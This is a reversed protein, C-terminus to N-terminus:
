YNKNYISIIIALLIGFIVFSIILWLWWPLKIKEECTKTEKDCVWPKMFQTTDLNSCDKNDRCQCQGDVCAPTFDKCVNLPYGFDGGCTCQSLACKNTTGECTLGDCDNRVILLGDEKETDVKVAPSVINDYLQCVNYQGNDNQSQFSIANCNETDNCQDWCSQITSNEITELPDSNFVSVKANPYYYGDPTEIGDRDYMNWLYCRRSDTIEIPGQVTPFNNKKIFLTSNQIEGDLNEQTKSIPKYSWLVCTPNCCGEICQECYDPQPLTVSTPSQLLSFGVCDKRSNCYALSTTVPDEERSIPIVDLAGVPLVSNGDMLFARHPYQTGDGPVVTPLVQYTYENELENCPTDVPSTPTNVCNQNSEFFCQCNKTVCNNYCNGCTGDGFQNCNECIQCETDGM